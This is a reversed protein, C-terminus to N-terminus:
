RLGERMLEEYNFDDDLADVITVKPGDEHVVKNKYLFKYQIVSCERRAFSIGAPTPKWFGSTRKEKEDDGKQKQEVLGWHVLKANERSDIQKSWPEAVSIWRPEFVYRRVMGILWRAMSSNINRKYVKIYRQCIPCTTGKAHSAKDFLERREQDWGFPLNM